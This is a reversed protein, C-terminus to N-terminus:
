PKSWPKRQKKGKPSDCRILTDGHKVEWWVARKKLEKGGGGKKHKKFPNYPWNKHDM